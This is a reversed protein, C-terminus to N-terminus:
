AWEERFPRVRRSTAETQSLLVSSLERGEAAGDRQYMRSRAVAGPRPGRCRSPTADLLQKRIRSTPLFRRERRGSARTCRTWRPPTRSSNGAMGLTGEDAGLRALALVSRNRAGVRPRGSVGRANTPPIDTWPMWVEGVHVDRWLADRFRFMTRIATRACSLTSALSGTRTRSTTRRDPSGRREDVAARSRRQACRLRCSGDRAGIAEPVALLFADGFGVNYMRVTVHRQDAMDVGRPISRPSTTCGCCGRISIVTARRVVRATSRPSRLARCVRVAANAERRGGRAQDAPHEADEVTKRHRISSIWGVSAVVTTGAEFHRGGLEDGPPSTVSRSSPSLEILLQGDPRSGSRPISAPSRSQSRPDLHLRGREERAYWRLMKTYTGRKARSAEALGSGASGGSRQSSRPFAGSERAASALDEVLENPVSGPREGARGLM